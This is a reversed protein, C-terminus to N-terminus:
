FDVNDDDDEDESAADDSASTDDDEDDDAPGFGGGVYGDEEVGFGYSDASKGGGSVLKIIQAAKLRLTVGVENDKASYYPVIQFALKGESGGYVAVDCPKGASDFLAPKNSWTEGKDNKGVAKVKFNFKVRGTEEGDQDYVPGYPERRSLKKAKAADAGGKKQLEAKKKEFYADIEGDIQASLKAAPGPELILGSTYVGEKDFKTDAKNLWPYHFVGRPSTHVPLKGKKNDSM